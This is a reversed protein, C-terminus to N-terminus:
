NKLKVSFLFIMEFKLNNIELYVGNKIVYLLRLILFLELFNKQSPTAYEFQMLHDEERIHYGKGEEFYFKM